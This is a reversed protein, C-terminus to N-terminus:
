AKNANYLSIDDECVAKRRYPRIQGYCFATITQVTIFQNSFFTLFSEERLSSLKKVHSRDYPHLMRSVMGDQLFMGMASAESMLESSSM